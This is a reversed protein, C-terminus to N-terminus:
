LSDDRVKEAVDYATLDGEGESAEVVDYFDYKTEYESQNGTYKFFIINEPRNVEKVWEDPAFNEDFECYSVPEFGCKRNSVFIKCYNNM